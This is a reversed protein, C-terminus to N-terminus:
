YIIYVYIYINLTYIYIYIYNKWTLTTVFCILKFYNSIYIKKAHIIKKQRTLITRTGGECLVLLAALANGLYWYNLTQENKGIPYVYMVKLNSLLLVRHGCSGFIFHVENIAEINPLIKRPSVNKKYCFWRFIIKISIYIYINKKKHSLKM